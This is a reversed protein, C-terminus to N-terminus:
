KKTRGNRLSSQSHPFGDIARRKIYSSIRLEFLFFIIIHVVLFRLRILDRWNRTIPIPIKIWICFYLFLFKIFLFSAYFKKTEDRKQEKKESKRTQGNKIAGLVHQKVNMQVSKAQSRIHETKEKRSYM